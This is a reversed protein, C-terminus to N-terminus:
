IGAAEDAGGPGAASSTSAAAGAILKVLLVRGGLVGVVLWAGMWGGRKAPAQPPTIVQIPIAGPAAYTGAPISAVPQAAVPQAVPAAAVPAAAAAASVAPKASVDTGCGVCFREDGQLQTGCHKCFAM